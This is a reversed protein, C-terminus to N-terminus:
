DGTRARMYEIATRDQDRNKFQVCNDTLTTHIKYPVPQILHFVFGAAVMKAARKHLEVYAFNRARDIAVFLYLKGEATKM